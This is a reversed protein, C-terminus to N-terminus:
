ADFLGAIEAPTGPLYRSNGTDKLFEIIQMAPTTNAHYTTKMEAWTTKMNPLYYKYENLATDYKTKASTAYAQANNAITTKDKSAKAVQGDYEKVKTAQANEAETIKITEEQTSTIVESYATPFTVELLQFNDLNVNNNTFATTQDARLKTDVDSRNFVFSVVTFTSCSDRITSKAIKQLPDKWSGEGWSDFLSLVGNLSSVIRFQYSVNITLGMGDKSRVNLGNFQVTQVETPYEAFRHFPGLTHTGQKFLTQRNQSRTAQAIDLGVTTASLGKISTAILTISIAVLLVCFITGITCLICKKESM